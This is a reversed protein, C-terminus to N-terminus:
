TVRTVLKAACGPRSAVTTATGIRCSVFTGSTSCRWTPPFARPSRDSATRWRRARGGRQGDGRDGGRRRESAAPQRGLTLVLPFNTRRRRGPISIRRWPSRCAPTSSGRAPAQKRRASFCCRAPFCRRSPAAAALAAIGADRSRRSITPRRRASRRPSSRAAARTLEDAHLKIGCDPTARRLSFRRSRRGHVRRDRLLRRRLPRAEGRRRGPDDRSRASRRVRRAGDARERHELPIEHAGLFTPVIRM